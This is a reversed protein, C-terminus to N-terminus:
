GALDYPLGIVRLGLDLFSSDVNKGITEEM